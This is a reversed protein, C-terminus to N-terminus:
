GRSLGPVWQVLLQTPGLAPRSPRFVEDGGPNSGPGDLRVWDSYRFQKDVAVITALFHRLTVNYRCYIAQRTVYCTLYSVIDFVEQESCTVFTTRQGSFVTLWMGSWLADERFNPSVCIEPCLNWNSLSGTPKRLWEMCTEPCWKLNPWYRKRGSGERKM